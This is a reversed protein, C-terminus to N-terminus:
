FRGRVTLEIFDLPKAPGTDQLFAGPQFRTYVATAELFPTITWTLNASAATGVYRGAGPQPDRLIAGSPTYVGDTKELRWFFNVDTTLALADDLQLTLSPHVNFFNRPGLTADESFYNGRPYLPNFTQLRGDSPNKDGSAINASLGLRPRSPVDAFIVGTETAVTWARIDDGGFRGFQGIAEWNYDWAGAKGSLRAGVSTRREAAVGQVFRASKNEYAITYTDLVSGSGLVDRGVAYAGWLKQSDNTRDDFVGFRDERPRAYFGSLTWAGHELMLRGGDFARRVNPGERPDVLRGSGFRMEQRGFRITPTVSGVPGPAWEVFSNQWDLRNEDVPSPGGKRGSEIAHLVQGYFRLPGVHVDTSFTARQLWVSSRAYDAGFEPNRQSEWRERLEGDFSIWTVGTQHLPVYKVREWTTLPRGAAALYSYDEEYRILKFDPPRSTAATFSEQAHALRSTGCIGFVLCAWLSAKCAIRAM